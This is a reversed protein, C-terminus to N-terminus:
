WWTRSYTQHPHFKKTCTIVKDSNEIDETHIRQKTENPFNEVNNDNCEFITFGKSFYYELMRKPCKLIVVYNINKLFGHCFMLKMLLYPIGIGLIIDFRNERHKSGGGYGM